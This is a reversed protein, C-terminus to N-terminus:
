AETQDDLERRKPEPRNLLRQIVDDFTKGQDKMGNLEKYTEKSVRIHNDLSM